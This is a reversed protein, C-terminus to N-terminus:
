PGEATNTRLKFSAFAIAALAFFWVPILLLRHEWRREESVEAAARIDGSVSAVRLGLDELQELDLSHQVLAIQEYATRASQFRFRYDEVPRGARVLEELASEAEEMQSNARIVREQIEEGLVAVDTDADHCSTCTDAIGDIPVPETSHNSHCATCGPLAGGAAAAGHLGGGFAERVLLHCQGCVNSIETVSPPLAAHSGHCGICSPAAFNLEDYLAQGHASSRYEEFQNTPLEYRGMLGADEHCRGCTAPIATPHTKSRADDPRHITHADHCDTCTPADENGQELLLQGHRSSRLEAIQDAPIGYQRMLDVSSHCTSCIQVTELKEPHGIFRGVHADAIEFARPDGGHCDSCRIGWESHVGLVFARRKDAHCVICGYVSDPHASLRPTQQASVARPAAPALLVATM